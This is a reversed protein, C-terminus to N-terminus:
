ASVIKLPVAGLISLFVKKFRTMVKNHKFLVELFLNYSELASLADNSSLAHRSYRAEEFKECFNVFEDVCVGYTGAISYAGLLPPLQEKQRMGFVSIICQMNAYLNLIFSRPNNLEAIIQRKKRAIMFFQYAFFICFLCILILFILPLFRLFAYFQERSAQVQLKKVEVEKLSRKVQVQEKKSESMLVKKLAQVENILLQEENKPIGMEVAAQHLQSVLKESEEAVVRENKRLQPDLDPAAILKKLSEQIKKLTEESVGADSFRTLIENEKQALYMDVRLALIDDLKRSYKQEAPYQQKLRSIGELTKRVDEGTQIEEISSITNLFDSQISVPAAELQTKLLRVQKLFTKYVQWQKLDKARKLLDDQQDELGGLADVNRNLRNGAVTIAKETPAVRLSGLSLLLSVAQYLQAKEERAKSMLKDSERMVNITGKIEAYENLTHTVEEGDGKEEGPGPTNFLSKLGQHTTETEIVEPTEREMLSIMKMMESRDDSNTLSVAMKLAQEQFIAQKSYYEKELSELDGTNPLESADFFGIKKLYPAHLAFFVFSACLIVLACSVLPVILFGWKQRSSSEIFRLSQAFRIKLLALWCFFVGLLFIGSLVARQTYLVAGLALPVSLFIIYTRYYPTASCFCFIAVLFGASKLLILVIEKYGLYSHLLANILWVFICVAGVNTLILDMKASADTRMASWALGSLFIIIIVPVLSTPVNGFLLLLFCLLAFILSLERILASKEEIM